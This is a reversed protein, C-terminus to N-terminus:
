WFTSVRTTNLANKEFMRLGKQTFSCVVFLVVCSYFFAFSACFCRGAVGSSNKSKRSLLFVGSAMRERNANTEFM